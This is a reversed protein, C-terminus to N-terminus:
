RIPNDINLGIEKSRLCVNKPKSKESPIPLAKTVRFMKHEPLGKPTEPSRGERCAPLACQGTAIRDRICMESGM